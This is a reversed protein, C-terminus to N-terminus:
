SETLTSLDVISIDKTFDGIIVTEISKADQTLRYAHAIMLPKMQFFTESDMPQLKEIVKEYNLKFLCSMPMSYQVSYTQLTTTLHILQEKQLFIKVNGTDSSTVINGYQDTIETIEGFFGRYKGEEDLWVAFVKEGLFYELRPMESSEPNPTAVIIRSVIIFFCLARLFYIKM